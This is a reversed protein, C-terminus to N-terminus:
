ESLNPKVSARGCGPIEEFLAVERGSAPVMSPNAIISVPIYALRGTTGSTLGKKEKM